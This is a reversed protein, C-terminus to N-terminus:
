VWIIVSYIQHHFLYLQVCWRYWLRKRKTDAHCLNCWVIFIIRFMATIQTMSSTHIQTTEACSEIRSVIFGMSGGYWPPGQTYGLGVVALGVMWCCYNQVPPKFHRWKCQNRKVKIPAYKVKSVITHSVRVFDGIVSIQFKPVWDECHQETDTLRNLYKLEVEYTIQPEQYRQCMLGFTLLRLGWHFWTKNTCKRQVQTESDTAQIVIYNM